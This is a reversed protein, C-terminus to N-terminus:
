NHQCQSRPLDLIQIILSDMEKPPIDFYKERVDLQASFKYILDYYSLHNYGIIGNRLVDKLCCKERQIDDDILIQTLLERIIHPQSEKIAQYLFEVNNLKSLEDSENKITKKPTSINKSKTENFNCEWFSAGEVSCNYIFAHDFVARNCNSENFNSKIIETSSFNTSRLNALIFSVHKLKSGELNANELLSGNLNVNEFKVSRLDAKTLNIRDLDEDNLEIGTLEPIVDPNKDRWKNWATVGRRLVKLHKKNPSFVKKKIEWNTLNTQPNQVVREIDKLTLDVFYAIKLFHVKDPNQEGNEWRAITSQTVPPDFLKGFSYQTLENVSRIRRILPALTKESPSIANLMKQFLGTSKTLKKKALFQFGL